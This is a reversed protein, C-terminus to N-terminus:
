IIDEFSKLLKILNILNNDNLNKEFIKDDEYEKVINMLQLYYNKINEFYNKELLHHIIQVYNGYNLDDISHFNYNDNNIMNIKFINLIIVKENELKYKIINGEIIEDNKFKGFFAKDNGELLIGNDDNKMYNNINGKYLQKDEKNEIMIGKEIKENNIEGFYARFYLLNLNNSIIYIGKESKLGNKWKGIYIQNQNNINKDYIYLGYGEKLNNKWEGIYINKNNYYNIGIKEKTFNDSLIGIYKSINKIKIISFYKEEKEEKLNNKILINVKENELKYEKNKKIENDIENLNFELTDNNKQFM